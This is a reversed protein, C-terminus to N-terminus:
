MKGTYSYDFLPLLKKMYIKEKEYVGISLESPM